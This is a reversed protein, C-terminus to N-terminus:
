QQLLCTFDCMNHIQKLNLSLTNANWLTPLTTPNFGPQARLGNLCVSGREERVGEWVRRRWFPRELNVLEALKKNKAKKKKVGVFYEGSLLAAVVLLAFTLTECAGQTRPASSAAM